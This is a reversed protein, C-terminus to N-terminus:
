SVQAAPVIDVIDDEAYFDFDSTKRMGDHDRHFEDIFIGFAKKEYPAAFIACISLNPKEGEVNTYFSSVISRKNADNIIKLYDSLYTVANQGMCYAVSVGVGIFRSFIWLVPRHHHTAYLGNEDDESGTYRIEYGLYELHTLFDRFGNKKEDETCM